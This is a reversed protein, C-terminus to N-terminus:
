SLKPQHNAANAELTTSPSAQLIHHIWDDAPVRLVQVASEPSCVANAHGECCLGHAKFSADEATVVVSM